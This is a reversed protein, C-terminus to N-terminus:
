FINVLKSYIIYTLTFLIGGWITELLAVKLSYKKLIGNLTFGYVGFLTVGFIFSIIIKNNILESENRLVFIIYSIVMILYTIIISIMNLRIENKFMNEYYKSMINKIWLYDISIIIISILIIDLIIKDIKM